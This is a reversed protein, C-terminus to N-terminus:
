NTHDALRSLGKPGPTYIVAITGIPPIDWNSSIEDSDRRSKGDSDVFQYEVVQHTGTEQGFRGHKTVEYVRLITAQTTRGRVLYILEQYSYCGSALFIFGAIALWKARRIESDNDM